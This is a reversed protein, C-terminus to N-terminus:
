DCCSDGRWAARAENVALGAIGIAAIPDAWWGGLAANLILGALLVASLFGCLRSQRSDATVTPSTLRRGTRYKASALVPMVILAAVALGIGVTSTHPTRHHTLNWGAQTAVYAGLVVFGAAILRLARRERREDLGRLQWVIVFASLVEVGSDLGFGILAISGAAHGATVAVAAEISNWGVTAYALTMARRRWQAKDSGIALPLPSTM